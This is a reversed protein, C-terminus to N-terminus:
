LLPNTIKVGDINQGARFDESLIEGIGNEKAVAWLMADWFPLQHKEVARLALQITSQTASLVSCVTTISQIARLIDEVPLKPTIKYLCVSSFEALNQVSVHASGSLATAAFIKKAKNVRIDSKDKSFAYILINTDILTANM